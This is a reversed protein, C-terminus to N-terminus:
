DYHVLYLLPPEGPVPTSLFLSLPSTLLIYIPLFNSALTMHAHLSGEISSQPGQGRIVRM